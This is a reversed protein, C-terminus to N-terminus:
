MAKYFVWEQEESDITARLRVDSKTGDSWVGPGECGLLLSEGAGEQQPRRFSAALAVFAVACFLVGILENGAKFAAFASGGLLVAFLLGALVTSVSRSPQGMRALKGSARPKSTPRDTQEGGHGVLAVLPLEARGRMIHPQCM